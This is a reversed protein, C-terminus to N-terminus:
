RSIRLAGATTPNLIKKEETKKYLKRALYVLLIILLVLILWGLFSHPFFKGSSSVSASLASTGNIVKIIAYDLTDIKTNANTPHNYIAEIVNVIYQQNAVKSGIKAQVAFNGKSQAIMEPIVLEIKQSSVISGLSTTTATVGDPFQVTIVVNKLNLKSINEYSATFLVTEGRHVEKQDTTLDVNLYEGSNIINTNVTTTTTNTSTNTNTSTTNTTSKTTIFSKFDGKDGNSSVLRFFYAQGSTLGSLQTSVVNQGGTVTKASTVNGLSTTTGWEFWITQSTNGNIVLGNLISSNTTIGSAETTIVNSSSNSSNNNNGNNNTIFSRTLGCDYDNGNTDEICARFYYTQNSNLSYVTASFSGTYSTTGSVYTTQNLNSSSTGWEFYRRVSQNDTDDVNGRFTASSYDINTASDTSASLYGNNSSNNGYDTVFSRTSGCDYDGSDTDEACARFYYTQDDDLSYISASFSGTYSTTGSVYTTQNLNSSSTGWEFYRSYSTGSDVDTIDGRLTASDTDVNTASTTDVQLNGNGGNNGNGNSDYTFNYQFGTYEGNQDAYAIQKGSFLFFALFVIVIYKNKNIIKKM